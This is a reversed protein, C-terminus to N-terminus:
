TLLSRNLGYFILRSLIFFSTNEFARIGLVSTFISVLYTFFSILLSLMHSLWCILFDSDYDLAWSLFRKCLARALTAQNTPAHDRLQSHLNSQQGPCTGLNRTWDRTQACVPPLWYINREWMINRKRGKERESLSSFFTRPHFKLFIKQCMIKGLDPNSLHNKFVLCIYFTLCIFVSQAKWLLVGQEICDCEYVLQLEKILFLCSKIGCHEEQVINTKTGRTFIRSSLRAILCNVSLLLLILSVVASSILKLCLKYFM